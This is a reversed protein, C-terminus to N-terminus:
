SISQAFRYVLFGKRPGCLTITDTWAGACGGYTPISCQAPQTRSDYVLQVTPDALLRFISTTLQDRNPLIFMWGESGVCVCLVSSLTCHILGGSPFEVATINQLLSHTTDSLCCRAVSHFSRIFLQSM